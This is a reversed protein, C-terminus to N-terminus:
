INKHLNQVMNLTINDSDTNTVTFYIINKLVKDKIRLLDGNQYLYGLNTIKISINENNENSANKITIEAKRGRGGELEYITGQSSDGEIVYDTIFSLNVETFEETNIEQLERALKLGRNKNYYM